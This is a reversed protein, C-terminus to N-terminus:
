WRRTIRLVRKMQEQQLQKMQLRAVKRFEKTALSAAVISDLNWREDKANCYNWCCLGYLLKFWYLVYSPLSVFCSFRSSIEFNTMLGFVHIFNLFQSTHSFQEQFIPVDPFDGHIGHNFYGGNHSRQRYRVNTHLM